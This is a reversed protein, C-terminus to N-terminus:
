ANKTKLIATGAITSSTLNWVFRCLAAEHRSEGDAGRRTLTLRYIPQDDRIHTATVPAAFVDGSNDDRRTWVQDGVKLAEIAKYGTPTAVQTGPAFCCPAINKSVAEAKTLVTAGGDAGKAFADDVAKKIAVDGAPAASGAAAKSLGELEALTVRTGAAGASKIAAVGLKTLDYAAKLDLLYAEPYVPELGQAKTQAALAYSQLRAADPCVRPGTCGLTYLVSNIYSNVKQCEAGVCERVLTDLARNTSEDKIILATTTACSQPNNTAYCDKLAAKKQDSEKHTLFNNAVENTAAAGGAKGGAVSGVAAGAALTLAGKIEKPLDLKDIQAVIAPTALSTAGAGLAGGLGGGLGGVLTHLAVRATGDEKWNAQLEASQRLLDAKKVPDSEGAAALTLGKAELLKKDAYDGIAGAAASTFAAVTTLTAQVEKKDFNNALKGGSDVGTTVARNTGAVADAAGKGTAARQAADDTIVLTGAGIGSRTTSSGSEDVMAFGPLSAKHGSDGVNTMKSGGPGADNAGTGGVTVGVTSGETTTHNAIDSHTLTGTEVSSVGAGAVSSSIAAGKLDTNGKVKVQFGGDGARIGSQEQVSAYDNHIKSQSLSVDVSVGYGYTGSVSASQNKSDFRATDQLSELNLDGKIDTQVQQGSVVAGKINTDGGSDIKLKGGATVHSNLQTVGEGDEKGRSAAVSATFGIAAGSKSSYAAGIGAAASMSSSDSHQSELDQAALLNVQNDAKLTIGKGANVESGVIDINSAKGAGTASISVNNGAALTSGSNGTNSTTQSQKSESHGATLSVSVGNAAIDAAMKKAAMAATAAALAQVRTNKSQATADALSQAIQIASVVTGGVALTLGDQTMKTNFSGKGTDQGPTVAVSKGALTLDQGASLDSGVVKVANGATVTLSGGSSGVMARSQGSQTRADHDQDTTTTREGYSFGFGSDGSLFGSEEVKSHRSDTRSGTAAAITVNNGAALRVDGEGAVASGLVAIDHGAQVLVTNGSVASGQALSAKSSATSTTTVSSLAGGVMSYSDAASNHATEANRILVDNKAILTAQGAQASLQAGTLVIDGATATLSLSNGASLNGGVLSQDDSMTRTYRNKAVNQVDAVSRDKVAEITVNAGTLALNNDAKLNGGTVRM